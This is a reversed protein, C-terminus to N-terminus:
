SSGGKKPLTEAKMENHNPGGEKRMPYGGQWGDPLLLPAPNPMGHFEVGFMERAEREYYEAGPILECISQIQPTNEGLEIRLTLGGSEWFHYLLIFDDEEQQCTITSLHWIDSKLIIRVAALINQKSITIETEDMPILKTSSKSLNLADRLENVVKETNM